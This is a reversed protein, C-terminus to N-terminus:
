LIARDIDKQLMDAILQHGKENPHGHEHVYIRGYDAQLEQVFWRMLSYEWPLVTPLKLEIPGDAIHFQLMPINHRAAIGDFLNLAQLYNLERLPECMTLAIQQKILDRIGGPVESSGGDVWTSHVMESNRLRPNYDPDYHTFRDAETIAHLVLCTEPNPERQLWRLLQWQASQLSGGSLGLNEAPVNYHKGLLGLFNHQQRYADNDPNSYHKNLSPDILEDGFMWSDGFGVIKNFKKM